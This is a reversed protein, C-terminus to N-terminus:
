GVPHQAGQLSGSSGSNGGAGGQRLLELELAQRKAELAQIEKEFGAIIAKAPAEEAALAALEQRLKSLSKENDDKGFLRDMRTEGEPPNEGRIWAEHLAVEGMVKARRAQISNFRDKAQLYAPNQALFLMQQELDRIQWALLVARNSMSTAVDRVRADDIAKRLWESANGVTRLFSVQDSRLRVSYLALPEHKANSDGDDV